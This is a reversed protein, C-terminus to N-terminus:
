YHRLCFLLVVTPLTLLSITRNTLHSFPALSSSFFSHLFFVLGCNKLHLMFKCKAFTPFCESIYLHLSHMFILLFFLIFVYTAFYLWLFLKACFSQFTYLYEYVSMNLLHIFASQTAVGQAISCSM